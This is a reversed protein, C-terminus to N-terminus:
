PASVGTVFIGARDAAEAVAARDLVLCAGAEIAIGRMGAAAVAAVTAVGIAPLDARREQGPKAMKVLVVGQGAGRAGCRRILADTGDADERDVVAGQRVVVAQGLDKAGHGRAAAIGARIDADAAADPAVRGLTGAPALLNALISDVGVVRFGEHELEAIIARFLADDGFDTLARFGVKLFFRTTRWDPRLEALSPRRVGGALVIEEVGNERLLNLGQGGAGLRMFTHPEGALAAPDCSGSFALVFYPRHQARCAEILRLPLEGSGALVGLKGAM